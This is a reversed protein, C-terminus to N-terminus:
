IASILTVVSLPSCHSPHISKYTTFTDLTVWRQYNCNYPKYVTKYLKLVWQGLLSSPLVEWDIFVLIYLATTSFLHYCNGQTIQLNAYMQTMLVSNHSCSNCTQVEEQSLMWICPHTTCLTGKIKDRLLATKNCLFGAHALVDWLIQQSWPSM